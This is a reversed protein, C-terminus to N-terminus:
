RCVLNERSQLESTHVESRGLQRFIARLEDQLGRRVLPDLAGLPEDLLLTPPDHMLARMLAVRQRQGGSIEAPFRELLGTPLHALESRFLTTYPFLTSTRSLL